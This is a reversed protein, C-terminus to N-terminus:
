HGGTAELLALRPVGDMYGVSITGRVTVAENAQPRRTRSYVVITDRGQYLDFVFSQGVPFTEGARGDIVVVRGEFAEPQQRIRALSANTAGRPNSHLFCAVAIGLALVSAAAIAVPPRRLVRLHDLWALLGPPQDLPSVAEPPPEGPPGGATAERATTDGARRNAPRSTKRASEAARKAAVEDQAFDTPAERAPPGAAAM